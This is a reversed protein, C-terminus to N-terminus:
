PLHTGDRTQREASTREAADAGPENQGHSRRSSDMRDRKTRDAPSPTEDRDPKGFLYGAKVRHAWIMAIIMVILIGVAALAQPM